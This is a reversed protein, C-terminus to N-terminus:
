VSDGVTWVRYVECCVYPQLQAICMSRVEREAM